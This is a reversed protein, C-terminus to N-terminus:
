EIKMDAPPYFDYELPVLNGDNPEWAYRRLTGSGPDVTGNRRVSIGSVIGIVCKGPHASAWAVENRTVIVREGSTTTGKAELYLVESAKTAKADFPNGYRLDEVTWGDAEYFSTLHQQALDEIEKRLKADLRRGQGFSLTGIPRQLAATDRIVTVHDAWLQELRDALAAQVQTGSSQPKWHGEPLEALLTETPLADQPDLVTDWRVDAFNALRGSDDWHEDQFVESDFTGSAFIGREGVGQRLLFARDGCGIKQTAGGTSWRSFVSHGAAAADVWQALEDPDFDWRAPNNTLLFTDATSTSVDPDDLYIITGRGKAVPVGLLAERIPDGPRLISGEM